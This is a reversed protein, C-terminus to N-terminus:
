ACIEYAKYDQGYPDNIEGAEGAYENITYTKGAFGPFTELIHKKHEHTLTLVLDAEDLMDFTISRAHHSDLSLGLSKVCEASHASAPSGDWASIGASNFTIGANEPMGLAIAQAMPSRCTNGTCVFLINM